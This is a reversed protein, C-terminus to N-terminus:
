KGSLPRYASCSHKLEDVGLNLLHSLSESTLKTVLRNLIVKEGIDVSAYLISCLCMITQVMQESNKLM